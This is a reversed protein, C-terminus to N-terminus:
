KKDIRRKAFLRDNEMLHIFYCIIAIMVIGVFLVTITQINQGYENYLISTHNAPLTDNSADLAVAIMLFISGIM